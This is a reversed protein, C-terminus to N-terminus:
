DIKEGLNKILMFYEDVLIDFKESISDISIELNNDVVSNIDFHILILDKAFKAPNNNKVLNGRIANTIVNIKFGNVDKQNSLTVQWENMEANIYMDLTSNCFIKQIQMAEDKTFDMYLNEFNISIRNLKINYINNIDTIYKIVKNKLDNLLDDNNQEIKISVDIRNDFFSIKFKNDASIIFPKNIITQTPVPPENTNNIKLEFRVQQTVSLIDNNSEVTERLKFFREKDAESIYDFKGFISFQYNDVMKRM